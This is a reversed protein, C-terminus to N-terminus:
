TARGCCWRRRVPTTTPVAQEAARRRRRLRSTRELLPPCLGAHQQRRLCHRRRGLQQGGITVLNFVYLGVNDGGDMVLRQQCNQTDVCEEKYDDYWSYLDAGAITLNTSGQMLVSWAINCLAPSAKCTSADPFVPDGAFLGLSPNFPGPSQSLGPRAQFYPSETQIMSVLTNTANHWNYQYLMAHESATGYLWTPEASEDILVGRAVAVSVQTGDTDLDHDAVWLWMNEFYGSSGPTMHLM